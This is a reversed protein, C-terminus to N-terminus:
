FTSVNPKGCLLENYMLEAASRADSEVAAPVVLEMVELGAFAERRVAVVKRGGLEAPVRLRPGDPDAVWGHGSLELRNYGFSTVFSSVTCFRAGCETSEGLCAPDIGTVRVGNGCDEFIFFDEPAAPRYVFLEAGRCRHCASGAHEGTAEFADAFADKAKVSRFMVLCGECGDFADPPLELVSGPIAVESLGELCAFARGGIEEVGEPLVIELSPTRTTDGDFNDTVVGARCGEFASEGIRRVYQPVRIRTAVVDCLAGPGIEVCPLIEGASLRGDQSYPHPVALMSPVDASQQWVGVEHCFGRDYSPGTPPYRKVSGARFGGPDDDSHEAWVKAEIGTLVAGDGVRRAECCAVPIESQSYSQSDDELDEDPDGDAADDGHSWGYLEELLDEYKTQRRM